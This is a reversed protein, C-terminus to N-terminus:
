TNEDGCDFMVTGNPEVYSLSKSIITSAIWAAGHDNFGEITGALWFPRVAVDVLVTMMWAAAAGDITGVAAADDVAM